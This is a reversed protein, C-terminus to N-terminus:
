RLNLSFVHAARLLNGAWDEALPDMAVVKAQVSEALIRAARESFQPQIFIAVAKKEKAMRILRALESPTPERGGVEVPIQELGYAEAFYGWSPHFVFFTNGKKSDFVQRIQADLMQIEKLFAAYGNEFDDSFEPFSKKLADRIVLIQLAVLEPALWVHPDSFGGSHGHGKHGHDDDHHHGAIPRKAIGTDTPVISLSTYTQSFRALWVKEFPVGISFYIRSRSLELLQSPTPEYTAPSAGPTVMVNVCLHAGAIKEVFYKQPLISVTVAPKESAFSFGPMAMIGLSFLLIGVICARYAKFFCIYYLAKDM